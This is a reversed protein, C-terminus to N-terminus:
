SFRVIGPTKAASAGSGAHRAELLANLLRVEEEREAKLQEIRTDSNSPPQTELQEKLQRTEEDHEANLQAIATAEKERRNHLLAAVGGVGGRSIIQELEDTQARLEECQARLTNANVRLDVRLRDNESNALELEKRRREREEALSKIIPFPPDSTQKKGGEPQERPTSSSASFSAM